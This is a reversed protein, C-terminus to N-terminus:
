LACRSTRRYTRRRGQRPSHGQQRMALLCSSRVRARERAVTRPQIMSPSPTSIRCSRNILHFSSSPSIPRASSKYVHLTWSAAFSRSHLWAAGCFLLCSGLSDAGTETEPISCEQPLCTTVRGASAISCCAPFPDFSGAILASVLRSDNDFLQCTWPMNAGSSVSDVLTAAGTEADLSLIAIKNFTAWGSRDPEAGEEAPPGNDSGTFRVLAYAFRGDASIM